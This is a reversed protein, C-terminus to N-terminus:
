MIEEQFNKFLKNDELNVFLFNFKDKTAYDYAELFKEEDGETVHSYEDAIFKAEKNTLGKLLIVANVNLRVMTPIYTNFKHVVFLISINLHRIRTFLKFIEARQPVAGTVDDLVILINEREAPDKEVNDVINLILDDSYETVIEISDDSRVHCLTRDNLATPSIYVIRDFMKRYFKHIINCIITTKGAGKRSVILATFPMPLNEKFFPHLKKPQKPQPDTNKITHIKLFEEM